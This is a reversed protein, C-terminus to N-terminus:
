LTVDEGCITLTSGDDFTIFYEENIMSKLSIAAKNELEMQECLAFLHYIDTAKSLISIATTQFKM